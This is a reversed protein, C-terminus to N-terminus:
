KNIRMIQNEQYRRKSEPDTLQEFTNKFPTMKILSRVLKTNYPEPLNSYAGRTVIDTQDDLFDDSMRLTNLLSSRPMLLNGVYDAADFIKDTGSTVASVSKFNNMIDSVNYPNNVEWQMGRLIYAALQLAKNDEDDDDAYSCVLNVFFPIMSLCIVGEALLRRLQRQYVYYPVGKNDFGKKNHMKYIGYLIFPAIAAGFSGSAALLSGFGAVAGFGITTKGLLSQEKMVDYLPSLALKFLNKFVGGTWEQTDYDYTTDYFREQFMLPLYQRHQLICSGIFSQTIAARQLETATGDAAQGWKIIRSHVINKARDYADKYKPDVTLEHDKITFISYMTDGKKWRNVAERRSTGKRDANIIMDSKTMFEGDVYRYSHLVTVMITSKAIFDATSLGGYIFNIGVANILRNRNTHEFKRSMQDAVNFHESLKMLLDDSTKNGIYNIGFGNRMFRNMVELTATGLDKMSYRYGVVANLLHQILTTLLGVIAVKPSQGLNVAVSYQKLMKGVKDWSVGATSLQSKRARIDYMYMDLFKRATKYTNSQGKAIKEEGDQRSRKKSIFTRSKYYDRNQLMDVLLECDNQVKSREKYRMASNFYLFVINILDPSIQSPDQLKSTYKRPIINLQRGDPREGYSKHYGYAYKNRKADMTENFEQMRQEIDQGYDTDNETVMFQDKFYHWAATGRTNSNKIRSYLSGTISPLKYNNYGGGYSDNAEKMADYVADYLLKLNGKVKNFDKNTYLSAKPIMKEGPNEEQLKSFEPNILNVDAEKKTWGEGPTVEMYKDYYEPKPKLVSYWRDRIYTIEDIDLYRGTSLKFMDYYGPSDLDKALAQASLRKYEETPLFEAYRNFVKGYAKSLSKNEKTANKKIKSLQKNISKIKNKVNQPIYKAVYEGTVPDKYPKLLQNIEEKLKNYTEGEDSVGNTIVEYIPKDQLENDIDEFLLPKTGSANMKLQEKSNRSDWKKLTKFDFKGEKGKRMEEIGGCEEIVKNRADRWAAVDVNPNTLTDGYLDKDLQQLEKAIQWAVTNKEKLNGNIDYDSKLNRQLIKLQQLKSYQEDSLLDYHIYGDNGRVSEKIASIQSNIERRKELTDASLKSYADYYKQKFKRECHETLWENREKEWKDKIKPDDPSIRNDPDIGYKLNLKNMFKDYDQYFQGYNLKRILYGTYHGDKDKEYLDMQSQGNQLQQYLRLLTSMRKNSYTDAKNLSTSVLHYLSKLANDRAKDISGLYRLFSSTDFNIYQLQNIYEAMTADGVENGVDILISKARRLMLIDLISNADTVLNYASNVYDQLNQLTKITTVDRKSDSAQDTLIQVITKDQFIKKIEGLINLYVGFNDHKDYMYQKSSISGGKDMIRKISKADELIQPHIQSIFDSITEFTTRLDSNFDEIQAELQQKTKLKYEEPMESVKTAVLRKALADSTKQLIENLSRKAEEETSVKQEQIPNIIIMSHRMFSDFNRNLSSLLSHKQDNNRNIKAVKKDAAKVIDMYAKDFEISGDKIPNHNFIYNKLVREYKEADELSKIELKSKFFRCIKDIFKLIGGVIPRKYREKYYDEQEFAKRYIARRFDERTLFESCFEYVNKLGYYKDIRPYDKEPFLDQMTNYFQKLYKSLEKEEKTTPSFLLHSTLSHVVEHLIINAAYNNSLGILQRPYIIINTFMGYEKHASSYYGDMQEAPHGKEGNFIDFQVPIDHVLLVEALQKEYESLVNANLIDQIIDKSSVKEGDMFKKNSNKFLFNMDFLDYANELYSMEAIYHSLEANNSKNVKPIIPEGNEDLGFKLNSDNNLWNGFQHIFSPMYLKSKAIFAQKRDGKYTDLLSQFCGSIAGNPAMDLPNGNNANWLYYTMNEGFISAMEKFEKSNKNPCYLAM